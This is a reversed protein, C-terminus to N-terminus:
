SYKTAITFRHKNRFSTAKHLINGDFCIMRNPIPVIGTLNNEVLFQTEGGDDPNWDLNAYYLCTIKSDMDKHFYPNEGPSFCNIYMRIIDLDKVESVFERIRFDLLNFIEQNREIESVMGIPPTSQRDTEGYYYPSNHCYEITSRFDEESLFEDLIIIM